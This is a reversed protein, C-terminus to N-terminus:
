LAVQKPKSSLFKILHGYQMDIYLAREGELTVIGRPKIDGGSSLDFHLSSVGKDRFLLKVGKGLVVKEQSFKKDLFPEDTSFRYFLEGKEQWLDLTWDTQHALSLIQAEQLAIFLEESRAEFRHTDILQKLPIAVLTAVLVLLTLSLMM